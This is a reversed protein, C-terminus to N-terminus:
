IKISENREHRSVQIGGSREEEGILLEEKKLSCCTAAVHVSSFRDSRFRIGNQKTKEREEIESKHSKMVNCTTIEAGM